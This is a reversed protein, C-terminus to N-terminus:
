NERIEFFFKGFPVFAIDGKLQLIIIDDGQIYGLQAAVINIRFFIHGTNFIPVALHFRATTLPTHDAVKFPKVVNKGVLCFSFNL